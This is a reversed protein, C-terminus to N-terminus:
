TGVPEIPFGTSIRRPGRWQLQTSRKKSFGSLHDIGASAPTPVEPLYLRLDIWSGPSRGSPEDEPLSVIRAEPRFRSAGQTQWPAEPTQLVAAMGPPAGHMMGAGSARPGRGTRERHERGENADGQKCPGGRERRIVGDSHLHGGVELDALKWGEGGAGSGRSARSRFSSPLM